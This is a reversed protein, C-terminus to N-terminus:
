PRPREVSLASVLEGGSIILWAEFPRGKFASKARLKLKKALAHLIM